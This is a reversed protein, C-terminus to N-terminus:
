IMHKVQKRLKSSYRSYKGKTKHYYEELEEERKKAKPVKCMGVVNFKDSYTEREIEAKM